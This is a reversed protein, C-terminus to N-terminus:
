RRIFLGHRRALESYEDFQTKNLSYLPFSLDYNGVIVTGTQPFFFNSFILTRTSLIVFLRLLSITDIKLLVEKSHLQMLLLNYEKKNLHKKCKTIEKKSLRAFDQSYIYVSENGNVKFVETFYDVFFPEYLSDLYVSTLLEHSEDVTLVRDFRDLIGVNFSDQPNEDEQIDFRGFQTLLIDKESDKVSKIFM